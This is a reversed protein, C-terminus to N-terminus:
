PDLRTLGDVFDKAERLGVGTEQRYAKIAGITQGAVVLSAVRESAGARMLQRTRVQSALGDLAAKAERLGVAMEDRYAKIADIQYGQAVLAAVRESAGAAVLDEARLHWMPSLSARQQRRVYSSLLVLASSVAAVVLLILQTASM